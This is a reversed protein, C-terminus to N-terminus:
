FRTLKGDVWVSEVKGRLKRGVFPSNKSKSILDEVKVEWEANPDFLTVDAPDGPCLRGGPINLIQAPRASMREVLQLKTLVGTAVLETWVVALATEFGIMGSPALSFERHKEEQTHPAHDTAVVDIVGSQLGRRLADRDEKTRLPPSVRFVPDYGEVASDTLSLHHPTVEATIPLGRQKAQEILAVSEQASLHCFHLKAGTEEALLVDRAIMITEALSPIGPLGLVTSWYGEHMVGDGGLHNEEEHLLLPLNFLKSYELASRLVAPNMLTKGDDSFAVAGAAAMEGMEALEVGQLGKTIAGAPYVKAYGSEKARRKVYEIVVPSDAVPNTNAMCLVATFGGKLAAKTGSTITEEDERGPERLHSHLDILGPCVIKGAAQIVQANETPAEREVALVKGDELLLDGVGTFPGAPDIIEAGKICYRM